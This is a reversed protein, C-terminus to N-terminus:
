DDNFVALLDTQVRKGQANLPLTDPYRWRRPLTVREFQSLLHKKLHNNVSLKGADDLQELGEESLCIAAGLMTRPETLQIVAAEKVFPHTCLLGEMQALSLRKEEVKVIRDLRHLLTFRGDEALEIKDDCKMWGNSAPLYPSKLMLAGDEDNECIEVCSFPLWTRNPEMQRRYAIGGTETSGFVEIPFQGYCTHIHQSADYSLPGGSSFILSPALQQQEFELAEPLRSLQAPSSILCLNPMLAIYYSLTEPYEVLDSLFPRSAALPWLIKFLLGYIHQHSVTSIVSCQPLRSAFTQELISVEADLQEISKAIAKPEGSSGSTFLVLEGIQSTEPWSKNALGLEKKLLIFQKVESLPQDSIVGDFAHNLETLTGGQINAPLVVQKGALLAACMGAAFLDSTEAALLWRKIPSANLQEFLHAVHATFLSGTVIDHHNFSILQQTKPGNHLWNILLNNM